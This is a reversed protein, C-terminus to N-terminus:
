TILGLKLDNLEVALSNIFINFLTPSLTDGQRVGSNSLFWDTYNNNVRIINFTESYLLKITHYMKGRINNKLLNFFLLNRDICYFAKELDLFAAFTNEKNKIRKRLITSINYVHDVCSKGRQFGYQEPCIIKEAELYKTIRNNLIGTYIKCISSLLSIGRYLKPCCPDKKAGKQIPCIIARLWIGPMQGNSFCHKLLMFIGYAFDSNKLVDNPIKDLGPSKKTKARNIQQIVETLEIESNLTPKFDSPSQNGVESQLQSLTNQYFANDFKESHSQNPNCMNSFTNKWESLVDELNSIIQEDKKVITPIKAKKVGMSSIKNWFEQPNGTNLTELSETFKRNFCREKHKLAKDFLKCNKLFISKLSSKLSKDGKCKIFDKEAQTMSKWLNSLKNDWYPKSNKYYRDMENTLTECINNYLIDLEEQSVIRSQLSEIISLMANRWVENNMFDPNPSNFDYMKPSQYNSCKIEYGPMEPKANLLRGMNFPTFEISLLSHDPAKCLLM